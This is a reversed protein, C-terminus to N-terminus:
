VHGGFGALGQHLDLPRRILRILEVIAWAALLWTTWLIPYRYRFEFQIAYYIL